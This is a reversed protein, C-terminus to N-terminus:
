RRIAHSSRSRAAGPKAQDYGSGRYDKEDVKYCNKPLSNDERFDDSRSLDGLDERNTQWGVWNAIGKSCNYSLTYEDKILLLNNLNNSNAQSPNNDDINIEIKKNITSPKDVIETDTKKRSKFIFNGFILIIALIFIAKNILKNM